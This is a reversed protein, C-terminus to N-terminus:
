PNPANFWGLTGGELYFTNEFGNNYFFEAANQSREHGKNCVCVITDDKSFSPLSYELEEVTINEAVPIHLKDYEESSRIDIIKLAATNAVLLNKLETLSIAKKANM